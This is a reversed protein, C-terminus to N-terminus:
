EVPEERPMVAARENQTDLIGIEFAGRGFHHFSNQDAQAPQPDVPVFTWEELGIAHLKVAGGRSVEDIATM